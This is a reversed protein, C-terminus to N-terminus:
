SLPSIEAASLRHGAPDVHFINIWTVCIISKSGYVIPVISIGARKALM